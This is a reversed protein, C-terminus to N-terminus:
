EVTLPAPPDLWAFRGASDRVGCQVSWRGPTLEAHVFLESTTPDASTPKFDLRRVQEGRVAQVATVQFDRIGPACELYFDGGAALRLEGPPVDGRISARLHTTGVLALRDDVKRPPPDGPLLLLVAAAAVALIPLAWLWRRRPALEVVRAQPPAGAPSEGLLGHVARDVIRARVGRALERRFEEMAARGEADAPPTAGDHVLWEPARAGERAVDALAEEDLDDDIGSSM